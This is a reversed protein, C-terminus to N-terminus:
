MLIVIDKQRERVYEWDDGNYKRATEQLPMEEFFYLLSSKINNLDVFKSRLYAKSYLKIIKNTQEHSLQYFRLILFKNVTKQELIGFNCLTKLFARVSRKVIEKDGYEEVMKKTLMKTSIYNNSDFSIRMKDIISDVIEYDMILKALFLPEIEELTSHKVWEFFINNEIKARSEQFSYIFSRYIVTRAKRKGEKGILEKAIDAFIENYNSPNDGIKMTKLIEYIWEPRLPRDFGVM